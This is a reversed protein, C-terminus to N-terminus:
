SRTTTIFSVKHHTLPSIVQLLSSQILGFNFMFNEAQIAPAPSFAKQSALEPQAQHRLAPTDSAVLSVQAQIAAKKLERYYTAKLVIDTSRDAFKWKAVDLQLLVSGVSERSGSHPQSLEFTVERGRASSKKSYWDISFWGDEDPSSSSVGIWLPDNKEQSVAALVAGPTVLTRQDM